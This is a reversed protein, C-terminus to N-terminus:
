LGRGALRPLDTFQAEFVSGFIAGAVDGVDFLDAAFWTARTAAPFHFLANGFITGM